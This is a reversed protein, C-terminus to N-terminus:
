DFSWAPLILDTVKTKIVLEAGKPEWVFTGALSAPLPVNKSLEGLTVHPNWEPFGTENPDVGMYRLIEGRCANWEVFPVVQAHAVLLRRDQVDFAKYHELTIIPRIKGYRIYAHAIADNLVPTAAPHIDGFYALTVHYTDPSKAEVLRPFPFTRDVTKSLSAAVTPPVRFRLYAKM